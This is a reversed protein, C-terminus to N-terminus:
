KWSRTLSKGCIVVGLGFLSDFVQIRYSDEVVLDKHLVRPDFSDAMVHREWHGCNGYDTDHALKEDSSLNASELRFPGRDRRGVDHFTFIRVGHRRGEEVSWRTLSYPHVDNHLLDVSRSAFVELLTQCADGRLFTCEDDTRFLRHDELDCLILEHDPVYARLAEKWLRASIGYQVGVEVVVQPCLRKVLAWVAFGEAVDLTKAIGDTKCSPSRLGSLCKWAAPCARYEAATQALWDRDCNLLQGLERQFFVNGPQTNAYVSQRNRRAQKERRLWRNATLVLQKADM